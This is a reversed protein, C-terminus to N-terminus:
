GSVFPLCRDLKLRENAAQWEPMVTTTMNTMRDSVRQMTDLDAQGLQYSAMVTGFEGFTSAIEDTAALFENLDDRPMDEPVEIARLDVGLRRFARALESVSNTAEAMQANVQGPAPMNQMAQAVKLMSGTLTHEVDALSRECTINAKERWQEATYPDPRDIVAFWTATVTAVLSVVGALVKVTTSWGSSQGPQAQYGVPVWFVWNPPAAPWSPDPQWNQPPVWGDPPVPWGPPANFKWSQNSAM